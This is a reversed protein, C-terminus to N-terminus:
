SNSTLMRAAAADTGGGGVDGRQRRSFLVNSLQLNKGPVAYNMGRCMWARVNRAYLEPRQKELESPYYVPFHVITCSHYLQCLMRPLWSYFPITDWAPNFHRYAYHFMIPKVPSGNMFAGKHFHILSTGNTTTGEPFIVLRSRTHDADYQKEQERMIDFLQPRTEKTIFLCGIQRMFRGVIPTSQLSGKSLMGVAGFENMVMFVDCFSVHNGVVLYCTDDGNNNNNSNNSENNDMNVSSAAMLEQESNSSGSSCCSSNNDDSTGTTTHNDSSSDCWRVMTNFTQQQGDGMNINYQHIQQQQSAMILDRRTLHVRRIRHFGTIFLGVRVVVRLLSFLRKRWSGSEFDNISQRRSRQRVSCYYLWDTFIVIRAFLYWTVLLLVLLIFRLPILIIGPFVLKISELVAISRPTSRRFAPTEDKTVMDVKLVHTDEALYHNSMDINHNNNNNNNCTVNSCDCNAYNNMNLNNSITSSTYNALTPQPHEVMDIHILSDYDGGTNVYDASHSSRQPVMTEETEIM